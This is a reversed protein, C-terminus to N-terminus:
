TRQLPWSIPAGFGSPLGPRPIEQVADVLWLSGAIRIGRYILAKPAESDSPSPQAMQRSETVSGREIRSTHGAVDEPGQGQRLQCGMGAPALLM